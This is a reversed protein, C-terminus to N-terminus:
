SGLLTLVYSMEEDVAREWTQRDADHGAVTEAVEGRLLRGLRRRARHVAVKAASETMELGAATQAYSPAGDGATLYPRFAEFQVANGDAAFEQRLKEQAAEFAARAWEREFQLEPNMDSSPELRYRTEGSAFDLSLLTQGGGRKQVCDRAREGSLYHKAAGLLFARFRGREPKVSDISGLALISVFFGQTLDEADSPQRTRSRIFAYVPYWYTEFLHALAQRADATRGGQAALVISWQTTPFRQVPHNGTGAM